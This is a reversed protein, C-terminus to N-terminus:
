VSIKYEAHVFYFTSDTDTMMPDNMVSYNMASTMSATTKMTVRSVTAVWVTARVVMKMWAMFQPTRTRLPLMMTTVAVSGRYVPCGM